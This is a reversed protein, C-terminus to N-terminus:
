LPMMAKFDVDFAGFQGFDVTAKEGVTVDHIGTVAGCSVYTGEDLSVGRKASLALLFRLAQLLGGEIASADAEGVSVGDVSVAATLSQAPLSRWDPVRQGLVLGANNGFDSVVCCPGLNNIEAMPSSAIEAGVRLESVLSALEEDSYTRDEAPVTTGLQLVFEAEVAAFGGDFIAMSRSGATLSETISGAFIPGALRDVGLQERYKVPVMGVKWGAVRDPWREISLSQIAYADNLNDPLVGPFEALARAQQRAEVLHSSIAGHDRSMEDTTASSSDLLTM